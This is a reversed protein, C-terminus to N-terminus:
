RASVVEAVQITYKELREQDVRSAVGSLPEVALVGPRLFTVAPQILDEEFYRASPATDGPLTFGPLATLAVNHLRGIGSELMGGCWMDVGAERCRDHIALAEGFGGVRGVKLNVIRCAGIELAKRLDEASNISEDLCIPTALEAQLKAHDMIDDHALPQEIMMLNLADWKKLHRVDKLCYASNADAMLPMDPFSERIVRLPEFDFGPRVKLKVRAFGQSVYYGVREILTDLNPQIGISIGVPIETRTGGLLTAIPTASENAYADWIAMEIAAKAMKNRKFHALKLRIDRLDQVSNYAHSQLAPIFFDRLMHWATANTEESYLPEMSAVCEGYGIGGRVTRVTVIIGERADEIGFSTVFPEKLPLRVRQLSVSAIQM